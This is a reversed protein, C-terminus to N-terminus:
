WRISVAVFVIPIKLTAQRLAALTPTSSAVPLDSNLSVLETAYTRMRIADGDAWRHEFRLNRGEMRGLEYLGEQLAALRLAVERDNERYANLVGIRRVGDSPQALASLPWEVTAGGLLTFFERRRM